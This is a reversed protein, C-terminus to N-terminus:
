SSWLGKHILFFNFQCFFFKFLFRVLHKLGTDTMDFLIVIPQGMHFRLHEELNYIIFREISELDERGKVITRFAFYVIWLFCFILQIFLRLLKRIANNNIDHNKYYIAHREFYDVPFNNISIDLLLFFLVKKWYIQVIQRAFKLILIVMFKIKREGVWQNMLINFHEPRMLHLEMNVM